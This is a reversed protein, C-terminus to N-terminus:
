VELKLLRACTKGLIWARDQEAIDLQMIIELHYALNAPHGIGLDSGWMLRRAPLQNAVAQAAALPVGSLNLYLNEYDLAARIADRWLGRLGCHGSIVTLTPHRRALDGVQLPTCYPPTGDHLHIPVGLRACECAIADMSPSSVPHGQLWPHSKIGHMGLQEICRTVEAVATESDFPDVTGYAFLRGPYRAVTEALRDNLEPRFQLLSEMGFVVAADVEKDDMINVFQQPTLGSFGSSKAGATSVALHTHSDIIM